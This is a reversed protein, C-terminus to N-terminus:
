NLEVVIHGVFLQHSQLSHAQLVLLLLPHLFHIHRINHLINLNLGLRWSRSKQQAANTQM